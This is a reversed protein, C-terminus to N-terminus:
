PQLHPKLRNLTLPDCQICCNCCCSCINQVGLMSLQCGMHMHQISHFHLTLLQLITQIHLHFHAHGYMEETM